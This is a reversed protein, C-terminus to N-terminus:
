HPLSSSASKGAIPTPADVQAHFQRWIGHGLQDFDQVANMFRQRSEIDVLPAPLLPDFVVHRIAKRGLLYSERAADEVPLQQARATWQSLQAQIHGYAENLEQGHWLHPIRAEREQDFATAIFVCAERELGLTHLRKRVTEIGGQLNDPRVFLGRDLERLGVMQLARDRHRLAVRDSRGLAGCHVAIYGGQWPRVRQSASRWTAVDAALENASASLEYVGRSVSEIMGDASLRALAVRLNNAPIGFLAAAALLHRVPLHDSGAALLLDLILNKATISM